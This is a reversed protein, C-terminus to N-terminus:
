VAITTTQDAGLKEKIRTQVYDLDRANQYPIALHRNTDLPRWRAIDSYPSFLIVSPVCLAAAIHSVGTDNSVLLRANGIVAALEGATLHGFSEVINVVPGDIRQRLDNLLDTEERSGTLILTYGCASIQNAARAFNEVPWRRRPDRAGPHLCVYEPPERGIASRIRAFTNRDENLLPFELQTGQLPLGLCQPLKLFRLIEHEGDESVPFLTEDPAYEGPKRLGCVRAAGWRMCLSNTVVGNGHMQFVLDFHHARVTHLFQAIAGDDPEQEPLGPWGPFSIFADFYRSFRPVLDKQWPLGILSIHARPFAHRIARVAPIACLMDGLYLARFVAIKFTM